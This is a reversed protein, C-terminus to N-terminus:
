GYSPVYGSASAAMGTLQQGSVFALLAGVGGVALGGILANRGRTKQSSVLYALAGGYFATAAGVMLTQVGITSWRALEPGRLPGNLPLTPEPYILGLM